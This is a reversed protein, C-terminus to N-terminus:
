KLIVINYVEPTPFVRSRVKHVYYVHHVWHRGTTVPRVSTSPTIRGLNIGIPTGTTPMAADSLEDEGDVSM